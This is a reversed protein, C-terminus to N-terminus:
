TSSAVCPASVSAVLEARAQAKARMADAVWASISEARGAAVDAKALRGSHREIPIARRPARGERPANETRSRRPRRTMGAHATGAAEEEGKESREEEQERTGGRRRVVVVVAVVMMTLGVRVLAAMRARRVVVPGIVAGGRALVVARIVRAVVMMRAPRVSSLVVACAVMVRAGRVAVALDASSAAAFARVGRGLVVGVDVHAARRRRRVV